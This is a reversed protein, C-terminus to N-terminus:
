NMKKWIEFGKNNTETATQWNLLANNNNKTITFNLLNIPQSVDPRITFNQNSIDFFINGIAEVKIRCSDKVSAVNPLVISDFGDNPTNALLVIPYTYGGDTSLLIKVNTTNAATFLGTNAEDWTIYKTQGSTWDEGGNPSQVLFPGGVNDVTIKFGTSIQCGGKGGSTVGGKNDRVTLRFNLERLGFPLIEGKQGNMIASPTAPYNNVIIDMDPFFRRSSLSPIRSKFTPGDLAGTNWAGGIADGVDMQEWCYTIVDGDPDYAEANLSFPTGKPIVLTNGSMSVIVPITNSKIVDVRCNSGGANIVFNNIEDYSIPHFFADSNPQINDSGCIGAYGMITTGSGVEYATNASRNGGCNGTISNFSHNGSFQHGIEHAVYDIDFPDGVPLARGTVGRAKQADNCVVGLGAVGGGGTSFIHGIDFNNSGITNTIFTQCQGLLTTGSANNFNDKNSVTDTFVLNINNEILNLRVSLEYEYVASVRNVSTTIASLVQQKTPTPNGTAAVAYENTNTVAIRYNFLTNGVCDGKISAPSNTTAPLLATECNFPDNNNIFDKKFYSNYYYKNNLAYPDIYITGNPSLIIAHFGYFRSWDLRAFAAGDDIGFAIFTKIFGNDYQTTSKLLPSEAIRFKKITGDPYPLEIISNALQAQNGFEKPMTTLRNKFQLTDLTYTIYKQPVIVRKNQTQNLQPITSHKWLQAYTFKFTLSFIFFIAIKKM